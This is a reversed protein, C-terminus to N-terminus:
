KSIVVATGRANQVFVPWPANEAWIARFPRAFMDQTNFDLANHAKENFDPGVSDSLSRPLDPAHTVPVGELGSLNPLDIPFASFGLPVNETRNMPVLLPKRGDRYRIETRTLVFKRDINLLVSDVRADVPDQGVTKRARVLIQANGADDVATVEFDFLQPKLHAQTAVATTATPGATKRPMLVTHEDETPSFAVAWKEGVSYVHEGLKLAAIAGIQRRAAEAKREKQANLHRSVIVALADSEDQQAHAPRPGIPYSSIIIATSIGTALAWKLSSM